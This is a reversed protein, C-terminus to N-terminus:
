EDVPGELPKGRELHEQDFTPDGPQRPDEPPQVGVPPREAGVRGPELALGALHRPLVDAEGRLRELVRVAM